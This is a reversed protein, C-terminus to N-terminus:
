NFNQKVRIRCYESLWESLKNPKSEILTKKREVEAFM